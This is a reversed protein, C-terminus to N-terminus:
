NCHEVLANPLDIAPVIIQEARTLLTRYSKDVSTQKLREVSQSWKLQLTTSQQCLKRATESSSMFNTLFEVLMFHKSSYAGCSSMMEFFNKQDSEVDDLTFFSYFSQYDDFVSGLEGSGLLALNIRHTEWSDDITLVSRLLNLFPRLEYQSCYSVHWLLETIVMSTFPFNEWCCFLFMPTTNVNHHIEKILRKVFKHNNFVIEHLEETICSLYHPDDVNRYPNPLPFSGDSTAMYFSTDCCRILTAAVQSLQFFQLNNLKSSYPIPLKNSTEGIAIDIFIKPVNFFLLHCREEIGKEFYLSFFAFLDGSFKGMEKFMRLIEEVLINNPKPFTQLSM